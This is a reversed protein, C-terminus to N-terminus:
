WGRYGHGWPHDYRGYGRAVYPGYGRVGYPHDGYVAGYRRGWYYPRSIIVVPPAGYEYYSPPPPPPYGYALPPSYVPPPYVYGEAVPPGANYNPPPPLQAQPTPIDAAAASAMGLIGFAIAGVAASIGRTMMHRMANGRM